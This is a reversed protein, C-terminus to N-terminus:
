EETKGPDYSLLADMDFRTLTYSLAEGSMIMRMSAFIEKARERWEM